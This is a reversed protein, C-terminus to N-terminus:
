NQEQVRRICRVRAKDKRSKNGSYEDTFIVEQTTFSGLEVTNGFLLTAKVTGYQTGVFGPSSSLPVDIIDNGNSDKGLYDVKTARARDQDDRYYVASTTGFNGSGGWTVTLSMNVIDFAPQCSWYMNNQFEPFYTAYEAIVIEEIEDIAPLYWNQSVVLGQENRKNRNYCYAFASKPDEALTIGEIKAESNSSYNAKLYASINQNFSYGSFDHEKGELNTNDTDRILYFDYKPSDELKNLAETYADEQNFWGAVGTSQGLVVADDIHSIQINNLGWVM